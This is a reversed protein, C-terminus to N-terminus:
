AENSTIYQRNVVVYGGAILFFIGAGIICTLHFWTPGAPGFSAEVLAKSEPLFWELWLEGLRRLHYSMTFRSIIAPVISMLVEVGVIFVAGVVMARKIFITGIFSFIAGYVFCALAYIIALSTWTNLAEEPSGMMAYRNAILACATLALIAIVYSTMVATLYKGLYCAIRGGPRMAIFTWTKGELESQINPTAWLLLSLVCVLSVLFIIAFTSFEFVPVNGDTGEINVAQPAAIILTLMAPPFLILIGSVAIRQLTFSRILEFRCTALAGLFWNKM